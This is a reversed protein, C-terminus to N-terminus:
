PDGGAARLRQHAVQPLVGFRTLFPAWCARGARDYRRLTDLLRARETGALMEDPLLPDLALQRIARGGLEFSETMARAEPLAALRAASRELALRTDRYGALLAAAPWLRRAAADSEPDLRRIEFVPAQVDLGLAQLQSRVGAIGGHLNDPRIALGPRLERFGLWELARRRRRVTSRPTAPLGGLHVGAWGGDWGRRRADPHRWSAVQRSVGAAGPGIRYAGREDREILDDRLARALAVRIPNEKIGFLAGAAVLARAPMAGHPLTSLLDLVLHRATPM